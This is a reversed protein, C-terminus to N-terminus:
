RRDRGRKSDDRRSPWNKPLDFPLVDSRKRNREGQAGEDESGADDGNSDTEDGDRHTDDTPTEDNNSREDDNDDTQDNTTEEDRREQERYYRRKEDMSDDADLPPERLPIHVDVGPRSSQELEKIDIDLDSLEGSELFDYVELDFDLTTDDDDSAETVFVQIGRKTERAELGVDLSVSLNTARYVPLSVDEPFQRSDIMRQLRRQGNLLAQIEAESVSDYLSALFHRLETM